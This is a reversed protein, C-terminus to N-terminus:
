AHADKVCGIRANTRLLPELSRSEMIGALSEEGRGGAGRLIAASRRQNSV